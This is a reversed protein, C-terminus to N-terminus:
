EIEESESEDTNCFMVGFGRPGAVDEVGRALTTFFPNTIDSLVLAVTKTRKLRLSRALTNPVYGLKAIADEVRLRTAPSVYGTGNLVRSVTMSSIGARQAVDRITSM